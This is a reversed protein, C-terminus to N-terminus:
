DLENLYKKINAINGKIDAMDKKISVIDRKIGEVDSEVKKVGLTREGHLIEALTKMCPDCIWDKKAPAYATYGCFICSAM